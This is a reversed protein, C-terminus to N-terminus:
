NSGYPSGRKIFNVKFGERRFTRNLQAGASRCANDFHKYFADGYNPDRDIYKCLWAAYYVLADSYEAPIRYSRYPSYVPAPKQVYDLTFTYSATSSPPDVVFLLKQQPRIIYADSLAWDNGSGDFLATVLQTNSTVALVVGHADDTTNHVEDGVNVSTLFTATSDNLNCEGNSAAGASTATGSLSTTGTPNDKISFRGPITTSTTNAGYVVAEYDRHCIFRPNTTAGPAYYRAFFREQSDKLYLEMFDANLDYTSTEAATTITQTATLCKTRQVFRIAAQHLMRYLTRNSFFGTSGTDQLLTQLDKKLNYGDTM